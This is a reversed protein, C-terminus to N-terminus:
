ESEVTATSKLEDHGVDRGRQRERHRERASGTCALKDAERVREAVRHRLALGTPTKCIM